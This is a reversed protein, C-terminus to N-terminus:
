IIVVYLFDSNCWFSINGFFCRNIIKIAEMGLYIVGISIYCVSLVDNSIKEFSCYSVTQISSVISSIFEFKIGFIRSIIDYNLFAIM